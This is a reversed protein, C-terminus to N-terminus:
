KKFFETKRGNLDIAMVGVGFWENGPSDVGYKM